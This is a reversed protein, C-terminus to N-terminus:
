EDGLLNTAILLDDEKVPEEGTVQVDVEICMFGGGLPNVDSLFGMLALYQLVSWGGEEVMGWQSRSTHRPSPMCSHALEEQKVQALLSQVTLIGLCM